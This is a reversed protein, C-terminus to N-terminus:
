FCSFKLSTISCCIIMKTKTYSNRTITVCGDYTSKTFVWTSTYSIDENTWTSCPWFLSLKLSTITSCSIILKAIIYSDRTVTVCSDYTSVIFVWWFTYICACSIDKSARTSCPCFLSFKLSTIFCSTISKTKTYSDRTVTVCSNYASITFVWTSTYSIDENTWTSCPWFLSFKLSTITSCSTIIKTKTYSDRTVTVCSNYASITFVWWFSCICACSIDKSAWTTRPCFLSFKM